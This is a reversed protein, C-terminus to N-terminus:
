VPGRGCSAWLCSQMLFPILLSSQSTIARAVGLSLLLNAIKNIRQDFAGWSVTKGDCVLAPKDPHAKANGRVVEVITQTPTNALAPPNIPIM